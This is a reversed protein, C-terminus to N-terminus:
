RGFVGEVAGILTCIVIHAFLGYHIWRRTYRCVLNVDSMPVTRWPAPISRIASLSRRWKPFLIWRRTFRYLFIVDSM